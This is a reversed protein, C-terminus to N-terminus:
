YALQAIRFLLNDLFFKVQGRTPWVEATGCLNQPHLIRSRARAAAGYVKSGFQVNLKATRQIAPQVLHGNYSRALGCKEEGM